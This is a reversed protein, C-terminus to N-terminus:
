SKVRAKLRAKGDEMVVSYEVKGGTKGKRLEATKRRVFQLFQERDMSNSNDGTRERAERFASYLKEVERIEHTPDGFTVSVEAEQAAQRRGPARTGRKRSREAEIARAAAGFHRPIVGEERMRLRKRFVERFKAYTQALSNYRFRQTSNVRVPREGYKKILQEIRWEVDAPPRPKGGNFFQEYEIKFQRIDKEFQNLDEDVPSLKPALQLPMGLTVPSSPVPDIFERQATGFPHVLTPQLETLPQSVRNGRNGGSHELVRMM